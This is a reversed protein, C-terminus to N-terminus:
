CFKHHLITSFMTIICALIIDSSFQSDALALKLYDTASDESLRISLSVSCITAPHFHLTVM